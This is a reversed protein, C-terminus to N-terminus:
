SPRPATAVRCLIFHLLPRFLLDLAEYRDKFSLSTLIERLEASQLREVPREPICWGNGGADHLFREPVFGASELVELWQRAGWNHVLPHVFQDADGIDTSRAVSVSAKTSFKARLRALGQQAFYSLTLPPVKRLRNAALASEGAIEGYLAVLERNNKGTVQRVHDMLSRRLETEIRGRKGYVCLIFIGDSAVVERINRLCLAPDPTHHICGISTVLRHPGASRGPPFPESLDQRVFEANSVRAARALERARELSADSFDVGTVAAGPFRRAMDLTLNGTGCGADLVSPPDFTVAPAVYHAILDGHNGQYPFPFEEYLARVNM